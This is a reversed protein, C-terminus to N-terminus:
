GVVRRLIAPLMHDWVAARACASALEFDEDSAFLGQARVEGLLREVAALETSISSLSFVTAVATTTLVLALAGFVPVRGVLAGLVGIVISLPPIIQGFRMMAARRQWATADRQKWETLAAHRIQEGCEWATTEPEAGFRAQWANRFTACTRKGLRLKVGGGFWGRAALGAALALASVLFLLRWLM